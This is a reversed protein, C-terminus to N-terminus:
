SHSVPPKAASLRLESPVPAQTSISSLPARSAPPSCTSCPKASATAAPGPLFGRLHPSRGPGSHAQLSACPSVKFPAEPQQSTRPPNPPMSECTRFDPDPVGVPKRTRSPLILQSDKATSLIVASFKTPQKAKGPIVAHPGFIQVEPMPCGAKGFGFTRVKLVRIAKPYM